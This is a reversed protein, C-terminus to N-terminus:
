NYHDLNGRTYEHSTAFIITKISNILNQNQLWLRAHLFKGHQKEGSAQDHTLYTHNVTRHNSTEESPM